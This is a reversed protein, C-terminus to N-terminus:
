DRQQPDMRYADPGLDTKDPDYRQYQRNHDRLEGREDDDGLDEYSGDTNLLNLPEGPDDRFRNLNIGGKEGTGRIVPNDPTTQANAEHIVGSALTMGTFIVTLFPKM